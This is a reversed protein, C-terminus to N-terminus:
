DHTCSGTVSCGGPGTGACSSTPYSPVCTWIAKNYFACNGVGRCYYDGEPVPTPTGGTPTPTPALTPELGTCNILPTTNTSSVGWNFLTEMPSDAACFENPDTTLTTYVRYYSPCTLDDIQYLYKNVPQRPDCPLRSLYPTFSPSTAQNGCIHCVSSGDPRLVAADYCIQSPMPYCNKDNYWDELVKKLGSLETRRKGDNAKNIQTKPNFVFFLAALLLILITITVLIELLSYAKKSSPHNIISSPYNNISSQNNM